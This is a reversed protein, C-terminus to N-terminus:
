AAGIYAARYADIEAELDALYAPIADAGWALAAAREEALTELHSRIDTATMQIVDPATSRQRQSSECRPPVGLLTSARTKLSSLGCKAPAAARGQSPETVTRLPM